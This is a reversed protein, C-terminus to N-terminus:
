VLKQFGKPTAPDIIFYHGHWEYKSLLGMSLCKSLHTSLRQSDLNFHACCKATPVIQFSGNTPRNVWNFENYLFALALKYPWSPTKM